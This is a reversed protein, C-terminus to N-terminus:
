EANTELMAGATTTNRRTFAVILIHVSLVFVWGPLVLELWGVNGPGLLLVLAAAYGLMALWRPVLRLRAAITTTSMTFVAAIRMGSVGALGAASRRGSPWISGLDDGAAADAATSVLGAAIAGPALAM